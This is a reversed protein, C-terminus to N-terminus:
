LSLIKVIAAGADSFGYLNLNVEESKIIQQVPYYSINKDKNRKSTNKSEANM